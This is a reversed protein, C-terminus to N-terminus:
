KITTFYIHFGRIIIIMDVHFVQRDGGQICFLLRVTNIVFVIDIFLGNQHM